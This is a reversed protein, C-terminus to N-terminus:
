LSASNENRIISSYLKEVKESENDWNLEESAILANNKLEALMSRDDRLRVIAKSIEGPNVEPILIGCRHETLVKRIEYLDSAIVPM